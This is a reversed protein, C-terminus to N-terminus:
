QAKSEKVVWDIKINKPNNPIHPPYIEEDPWHDKCLDLEWFRRNIGSPLKRQRVRGKTFQGTDVDRLQVKADKLEIEVVSHTQEHCEDCLRVIM